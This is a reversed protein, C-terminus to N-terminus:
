VLKGYDNLEDNYCDFQQKTNNLFQINNVYEKLILKKVWQDMKIIVKAPMTLEEVTGRKLVKGTLNDFCKTSGQINGSPGLIMRKHTRPKMNNTVVAYESAEIYAGFISRCHKTYDM